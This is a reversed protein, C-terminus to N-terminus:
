VCHQIHRCAWRPIGRYRVACGAPDERNRSWPFWTLWLRHSGVLWPGGMVGPVGRRLHLGVSGRWKRDTGGLRSEGEATELRRRCVPGPERLRPASATLLTLWVTRRAM